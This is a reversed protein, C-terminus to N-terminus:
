GWGQRAAKAKYNLSAQFEKDEAEAEQTSPKLAQGMVRSLVINVFPIERLNYGM